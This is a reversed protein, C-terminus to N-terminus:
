SCGVGQRESPNVVEFVAEHAIEFIPHSATQWEALARRVIEVEQDNSAIIRITEVEGTQNIIILAARM